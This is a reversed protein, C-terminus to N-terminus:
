TPYPINLIQSSNMTESSATQSPDIGNQSETVNVTEKVEQLHRMTLEILSTESTDIVPERVLYFGDRQAQLAYTGLPLSRLDCRGTKDTECKTYVEASSLKVQVGAVPVKNEDRVIVSVRATKPTAQAVAAIALALLLWSRYFMAVGVVDYIYLLARKTLASLAIM